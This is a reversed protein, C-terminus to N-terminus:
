KINTKLNLAHFLIVIGKIAIIMVIINFKLGDLKFIYACIALVIIGRLIEINSKNM